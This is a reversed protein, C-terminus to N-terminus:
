KIKKQTHFFELCTQSNVIALILVLPQLDSVIDKEFLNEIQIKQQKCLLGRFLIMYLANM